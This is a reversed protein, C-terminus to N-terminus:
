IWLKVKLISKYEKVCSKDVYLYNNDGMVSGIFLDYESTVELNRYM